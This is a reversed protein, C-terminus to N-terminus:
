RRGWKTVIKIINRQTYISCTLHYAIAGLAVQPIMLSTNLIRPMLCIQAMMTSSALTSMSANTLLLQPPIFNKYLYSM